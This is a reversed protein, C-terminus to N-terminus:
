SSEGRLRARWAASAAMVDPYTQEITPKELNHVRNMASRLATAREEDGRAFAESQEADLAAMLSSSAKNESGYSAAARRIL